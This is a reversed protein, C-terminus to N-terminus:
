ARVLVDPGSGVSEAKSQARAVEAPDSGRGGHLAPSCTSSMPGSNPHGFGFVWLCTSSVHRPTREVSSTAHHESATTSGLDDRGQTLGTGILFLEPNNWCPAPCNLDKVYCTTPVTFVDMIYNRASVPNGPLVTEPQSQTELRLGRGTCNVLPHGSHSPHREAPLQKRTKACCPGRKSGCFRFSRPDELQRVHRGREEVWDFPLVHQM